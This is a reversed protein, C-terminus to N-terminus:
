PACQRYEPGHRMDDEDGSGAAEDAAVKALKLPRRLITKSSLHGLTPVWEIVIVTVAPVTSMSPIM